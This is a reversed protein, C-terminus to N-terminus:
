HLRPFQYTRETIFLDPYIRGDITLELELLDRVKRVSSTMGLARIGQCRSDNTRHLATGQLRVRGRRGRLVSMLQRLAEANRRDM